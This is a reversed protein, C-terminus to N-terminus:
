KDVKDTADPPPVGEIQLCDHQKIEAENENAGLGHAGEHAWLGSDDIVDYHMGVVGGDYFADWGANNYGTWEVVEADNMVWLYEDNCTNVFAETAQNMVQYQQGSFPSRCALAEDHYNYSGPSACMTNGLRAELASLGVSFLTAALIALLLRSPRHIRAEM